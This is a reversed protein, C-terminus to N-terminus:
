PTFEGRNRPDTLFTPSCPNFQHAPLNASCRYIEVWAVILNANGEEDTFRTVVTGSPTRRPAACWHVFARACRITGKAFSGYMAIFTSGIGAGSALRDPCSGQVETVRGADFGVVAGCRKAIDRYDLETARPGTADVGFYCKLGRRSRGTGTLTPCAGLAAKAQALTMGLNVGDVKQSPVITAGAAVATLGTTVLLAGAVAALRLKGM